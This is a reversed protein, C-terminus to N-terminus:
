IEWNSIWNLFGILAILVPIPFHILVAIIIIISGIRFIKKDGLIKASERKPPHFNDQQQHTQEERVAERILQKLDEKSFPSLLFEKM